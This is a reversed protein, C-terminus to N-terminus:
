NRVLDALATWHRPHPVLKGTRAGSASAPGLGTADMIKALSVNALGPQITKEWDSPDWGQQHAARAKALAKGNAM